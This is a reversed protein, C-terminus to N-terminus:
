APRFTSVISALSENAGDAKINFDAGPLERIGPANLAVVPVGPFKMKLWRVIDEKANEEGSGGVIFLDWTQAPNLIGKATENGLVSVVDYGCLRLLDARESAVGSDYAVQFVVRKARPLSGDGACVFAVFEKTPLHMAFYEHRTKASLEELTAFANSLGWVHARWLPSGESSREFIDYDRQM